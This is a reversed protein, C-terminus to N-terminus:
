TVEQKLDNIRDLIRQIHGRQNILSAIQQEAFRKQSDVRERHKGEDKESWRPKHVRALERERWKNLVESNAESLRHVLSLTDALDPCDNSRHSYQAQSNRDDVKSIHSYNSGKEYRPDDSGLELWDDISELIKQTSQYVEAVMKEVLFPELVNRQDNHIQRQFWQDVNYPEWLSSYESSYEVKTTYVLTGERRPLYALLYGSWFRDGMDGVFRCSLSAKYIDFQSGKYRHLFRRLRGDCVSEGESTGERSEDQVKVLQLFNLHLETTWIDAVDHVQNRHDKNTETPLIM